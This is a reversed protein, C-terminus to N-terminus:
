ISFQLSYFLAYRQQPNCEAALRNGSVISLTTLRFSLLITSMCSVTLCDECISSDSAAMNRFRAMTA